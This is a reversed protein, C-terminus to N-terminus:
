DREKRRREGEDTERRGRDREKRRAKLMCGTQMGEEPARATSESYRLSAMLVTIQVFGPIVHIMEVASLPGYLPPPFLWSLM